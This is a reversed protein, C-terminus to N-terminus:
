ATRRIGSGSELKEYLREPAIDAGNQWCITGGDITAKSFFNLDSLPKFVPGMELFETFDIDGELNNDFVIHYIYDKLYKIEVIDNMKWM